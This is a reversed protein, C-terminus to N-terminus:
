LIGKVQPGRNLLTAIISLGKQFVEFSHAASLSLRIAALPSLNGVIFKDAPVVSTGHLQCERVFEDSDWGNSLPVWAFLSGPYYTYPYNPLTTALLQARKELEAKKLALIEDALGSTICECAIAANLTPAMWMTDVIQQCVKNYFSAPAYVFSVRLGPYFAKSLGAIFLSSEPLLSAISYTKEQSLHGYMADEISILHNKAIVKALAEIRKSSPHCCTPNQISPMTYIGKIPLRHCLRELSSPLMGEEDMEVPELKVGRRKAIMKFGSYTYCDVAIHDDPQFLAFLICDLAHHGGATIIIQSPDKYLGFRNLWLAGVQRHPLLGAPPTYRMYEMLQKDQAVTQLVKQVSPELACLPKAFGMDIPTYYNAEINGLNTNILSSNAGLDKSVFTGQGVVATILGHSEAEKYARTVTTVNVGVKKALERQPPLQEGPQLLGKKIDRELADALAMYLAIDTNLEKLDWM